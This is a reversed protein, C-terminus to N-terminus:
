DSYIHEVDPTGISYKLGTGGICKSHHWKGKPALVFDGKKVKIKKDEIYWEWEGDLIVWSEDAYKHYHHRNGEGPQQQILVGSFADNFVLRVAWSGMGLDKRIEDVNVSTINEYKRLKKEDIGKIGDDSLVKVVNTDAIKM